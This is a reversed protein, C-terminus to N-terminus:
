VIMQCNSECKNTNMSTRGDLHVAIAGEVFNRPVYAVVCEADLMILGGGNCSNVVVVWDTGKMM